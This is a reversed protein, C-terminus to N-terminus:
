SCSNNNFSFFLSFLKATAQEEQYYIRRRTVWKGSLLDDISSKEKCRKQTVHEQIAKLGDTIFATKEPATKIAGGGAALLKDVAKM